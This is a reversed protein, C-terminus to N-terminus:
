DKAKNNKEFKLLSGVKHIEILNSAHSTYTRFGASFLVVEEEKLLEKSYLMKATSVIHDKKQMYDFKISQVGYLIQLKRAAMISPTVAIIPQELRFRTIMRATYGSRTLAVVKDIPMSKTIQWIARSISRSINQFKEETVRSVVSPEIKEAIRAMMAVAEVPYKGIATEGSLMVVDSGDLIANAVDSIEARTPRSNDIMSELMETATIVLKGQQNCQRILQKQILPLEELPLEVGLDGRAIMIGDSVELIENFNELGRASEIKAVIGTDVDDLMGKLELIDDRNRTFSLAIYEVEKRKALDIIEIDRETLCPTNLSKGPINVGKGDKLVCDDRFLLQVQKGSKRVVETQFLGDDILTKDGVDLQDYIDHNFYAQDELGVTVVDGKRISMTKSVYLRLEPGKIDLFVPIEGIKRINNIREEYEKVDEYATNIRVGNMGAQYMREQILRALSAPGITCLIKTKKM